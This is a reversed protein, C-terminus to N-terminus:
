GNALGSDTSKQGVNEQLYDILGNYIAAAMDKQYSQTCLLEAEGPNSLFGCEVLVAPMQCKHLLYINNDAQKNERKNEPQLADVINSRIAEALQASEPRNGSYFVQAGSYKSESFHNQHISILICDGAEEVMRLRTRTDSRKREAITGLGQDGVSVDGDRVMFVDFHNIELNRKLELAIALNIDKELAGNVAVAGGDEGGHGADLVIRGKKAFFDAHFAVIGFAQLTQMAFLVVSAAFLVFFAIKRKM